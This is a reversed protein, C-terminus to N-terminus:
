RWSRVRNRFRPIRSRRPGGSRRRICSPILSKSRSVQFSLAGFLYVNDCYVASTVTTMDEVRDDGPSFGDAVADSIDLEDRLEDIETSDGTGIPALDAIIAGTSITDGATDDEDASELPLQDSV